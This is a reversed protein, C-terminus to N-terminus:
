IEGRAEAATVEAMLFNEVMTSLSLNRKFALKAAKRTTKENLYLKKGCGTRGTKPRGTPKKIM